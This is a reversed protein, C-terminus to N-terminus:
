MEYIGTMWHTLVKMESKSIGKKTSGHYTSHMNFLRDHKTTEYLISDAKKKREWPILTASHERDGQGCFSQKDNATLRLDSIHLQKFKLTQRM